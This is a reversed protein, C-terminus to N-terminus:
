PILATLTEGDSSTGDSSAGVLHINEAADSVSVLQISPITSVTTCHATTVMPGFPDIVGVVIVLLPDVYSALNLFPKRTQNPPPPPQYNESPSTPPTNRSLTQRSSGQRACSSSLDFAHNKPWRLKFPTDIVISLQPSILNQPRM